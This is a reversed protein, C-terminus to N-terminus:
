SEAQELDHIHCAKSSILTVSIPHAYLIDTREKEKERKQEWNRVKVRATEHMRLMEREENEDSHGDGQLM